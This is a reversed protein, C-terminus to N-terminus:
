RGFICFKSVSIGWKSPLLLCRHVVSWGYDGSASTQPQRYSTRCQNCSAAGYRRLGCRRQCKYSNVMLAAAASTSIVAVPRGHKLRLANVIQACVPEFVANGLGFGTIKSALALAVIKQRQATRSTSSFARAGYGQTQTLSSRHAADDGGAWGLNWCDKLSGDLM